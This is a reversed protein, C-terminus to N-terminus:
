KEPLAACPAFWIDSMWDLLMKEGDADEPTLGYDSLIDCHIETSVGLQTSAEIAWGNDGGFKGTRGYHRCDGCGEAHVHFQGKSQDRLNPGFIQIKM